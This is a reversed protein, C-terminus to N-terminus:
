RWRLMRQFVHDRLVWLHLLAAAVHLLLLFLLLNKQWGHLTAAGPVEYWASLGSLPMTLLLLYFLGHVIRALLPTVQVGAARVAPIEGAVPRTNGLRLYLRYAMLFGIVIGCLLHLNAMLYAGIAPTDGARVAIMTDVMAGQLLFQVALLAVVAWHLRVQLVSYPTSSETSALPKSM